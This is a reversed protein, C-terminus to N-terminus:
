SCPVDALVKDAIGCLSKLIETSDHCKTTIIDIGERSSQKDMLSLKHPYIDMAIIKGKNHMKEAMAFTKGGPAACVDVVTDGEQVDVSDAALISAEDQVHFFGQSYYKSSLVDKGNVLLARKTHKSYEVDFGEDCLMHKLEVANSKMENVRVSLEPARNCSSLIEETKEFGYAELWLDIIWSSVSYKIRLYEKPSEDASPLVIENGRKIYGRLVGNVFGERGKAFKRALNVTENVAAYEPVSNLFALQYIGLRLLTLDQKKLKSVGSPVLNDLYYDLLIKNELVGYVLERTFAAQSPGNKEIHYNLSLNSYAGNKEIDLLTEFATKRNIDM